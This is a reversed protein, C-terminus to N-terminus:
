SSMKKIDMIYERIFLVCTFTLVIASWSPTESQKKGLYLFISVIYMPWGIVLIGISLIVFWLQIGYLDQSMKWWLPTKDSLYINRCMYNLIKPHRSALSSHDYVNEVWPRTSNYMILQDRYYNLQIDIHQCIKDREVLYLLKRCGRNTLIYGYLGAPFEPVIWNKYGSDKQASVIGGQHQVCKKLIWDDLKYNNSRKNLGFSGVYIVDSIEIIEKLEDKTGLINQDHWVIDDELILCSKQGTKLFQKWTRFHSIACGAVCKDLYDGYHKNLYLDKESQTLQFGDTAEIRYVSGTYLTSIKPILNSLKHRDRKLNIIYVGDIVEDLLAM